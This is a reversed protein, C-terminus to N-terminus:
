SLWQKLAQAKPGIGKFSAIVKDTYATLDPLLARYRKNLAIFIEEYRKERVLKLIRNRLMEIKKLDKKIPPPGKWNVGVPPKYPLKTQPTVVDLDETIIIVDIGKEELKDMHKRVIRYLLGDYREIAPIPQPNPNRRFSPGLILLKPM